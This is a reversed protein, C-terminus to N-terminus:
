PYFLVPACSTQTSQGKGRSAKHVAIVVDTALAASSPSLSSFSQRLNDFVLDVAKHQQLYHYSTRKFKLARACSTGTRGQLPHSPVLM